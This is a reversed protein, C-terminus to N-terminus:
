SKQYEKLFKVIRLYYTSKISQENKYGHNRAIVDWPVSAAVDKYIAMYKEHTKKKKIEKKPIYTFM